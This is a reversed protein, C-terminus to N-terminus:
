TLSLGFHLYLSCCWFIPWHLFHSIQHLTPITHYYSSAHSLIVVCSLYQFRFIPFLVWSLIFNSVFYLSISYLISITFIHLSYKLSISCYHFLSSLFFFIKKEVLYYPVGVCTIISFLNYTRFIVDHYLQLCELSRNLFSWALLSRFFLIRLPTWLYLNSHIRATNYFNRVVQLCHFITLSPSCFFPTMQPSFFIGKYHM